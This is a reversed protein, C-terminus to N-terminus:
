AARGEFRGSRPPPGYFLAASGLLLALANPWIVPLLLVCAIPVVWARDTRAGWAVLLLAVPFRVHAPVAIDGHLQVPTANSALMTMWEAWSTLEFAASLGIVLLTVGAAVALNRWERRVAFWALGLGPTVKTLVVLAWAGPWRFGVVIAGALIVNVNGAGIDLIALTALPLWLWRHRAVADRVLAVAVAMSLAAWGFVFAFWPLLGAPALLQAFAPSYLYAGLAGVRAEAYLDTTLSAEWYVRADWTLWPVAPERLQAVLVLLLAGLGIVVTGERARIGERIRELPRSAQPDLRAPEEVMRQETSM